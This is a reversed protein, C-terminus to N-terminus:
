RQQNQKLEEILPELARRVAPTHTHKGTIAGYEGLTSLVTRYLALLEDIRRLGDARRGAVGNEGAHHVVLLNGCSGIGQPAPSASQKAQEQHQGNAPHGATVPQPEPPATTPPRHRSITALVAAKSPSRGSSKAAAEVEVRAAEPVSPAALLYLASDSLLSVTESKGGYVAWVNMMLQATRLSMGFEQDIWESFQGHELRGKVEQLERGIELLDHKAREAKRKISQASRMVAQRHEEAVLAYDYLLPPTDEEHSLPPAVAEGSRLALPNRQPGTRKSM